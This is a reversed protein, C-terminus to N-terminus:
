HTRRHSEGSRASSGINNERHTVVGDAVTRQGRAHGVKVDGMFIAMYEPRDTRASVSGALGLLCLLLCTQRGM